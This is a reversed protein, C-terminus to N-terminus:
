ENTPAERWISLDIGLIKEVARIEADYHSVLKTRVSPNMPPLAGNNGFIQSIGVSKAFNVIWDLNKQRLLNGFRHALAYSCAFRVRYSDNIKKSINRQEFLRADVGLFLGLKELAQEPHKMTTEFILFLFNEIPFYQLYRYIQESYHGRNLVDPVQNLYEQFSRQENYARVWLGYESYARDVPNRLIIIFKCDPIHKQIRSPTDPDYLYGPTIEGLNRYKSAANGVPFFRQYWDLGREYHKNFFYIEKRQTPLYIHPHTRLQSDLWTTGARLVGIGLFNPLTM